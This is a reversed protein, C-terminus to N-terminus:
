KFNFFKIVLYFTKPPEFNTSWVVSNFMFSFKSGFYFLELEKEITENNIQVTRAMMDRIDSIPITKDEEVLYDANIRHRM